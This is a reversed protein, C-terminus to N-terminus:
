AFRELTLGALDIEPKKNDMIDVLVKASGCSLTWGLTGQGTNLYLNDIPSTGIIPSGDPTSPRLCAWPIANDIDGCDAFLCKAMKKLTEIREKRIKHNYGAFEATGAVRLINDLRSYVIKNGQDTICTKPAANENTIPISISYGKMPYIPAKIGVQKLLLPSYAGLSMVYNDATFEGKDTIVGTIKNKSKKLETITTNYLFKTNFTDTCYKALNVTFKHVDGSEDIPFFIGGVIPKPSNTLSPAMELCSKRDPLYEYNCGLKEQFKAQELNAQLSAENKFVHLTGKELHTYTLNTEKTVHNFHEKSYLSLRMMNKTCELSQKENCNLLFKIIWSWMAPDAKPRFVLPSDKQFLWKVIKPLVHPSAWPEVHSFSLQGGNAFSCEEGSGFQRDIVTVDWGKKGLFYASTVGIIGSGLIIVKM